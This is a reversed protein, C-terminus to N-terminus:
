MRAGDTCSICGYRKRHFTFNENADGQRTADKRPFACASKAVNLYGGRRYAADQAWPLSSPLRGAQASPRAQRASTTAGGLVGAYRYACDLGARAGPSPM